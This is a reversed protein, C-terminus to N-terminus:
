PLIAAVAGPITWDPSPITQFRVIIIKHDCMLANDQRKSLGQTRDAADTAHATAAAAELM